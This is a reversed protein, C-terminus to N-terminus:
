ISNSSGDVAAVETKSSDTAQVSAETTNNIQTDLPSTVTETSTALVQVPIDFSVVEPPLCKSDDCVMFELEGSAKFDKGAKIKIKQEFVAENEFFILNMEFAKEYLKVAKSVEAVKGVPEFDKNGKITFSTPVPGGDGIFQSYLHWGKDIKAKFILKGETENITKASFTWKVPQEIQAVAFHLSFVALM